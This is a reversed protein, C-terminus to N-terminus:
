LCISLFTLDLVLFAYVSNCGKVETKMQIAQEVNAISLVHKRGKVEWIYDIPWVIAM